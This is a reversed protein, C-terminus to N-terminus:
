SDYAPRDSRDTASLRRYFAMTSGIRVFERVVAGILFLIAMAAITSPDSRDVIIELLTPSSSPDAGLDIYYTLAESITDQGLQLAGRIGILFPVYALVLKTVTFGFVTRTDDNVTRASMYIAEIAGIGDTIIVPYLFQTYAAYPVVGVVAILVFIVTPLTLGNSEPVGLIFFPILLLFGVGLGAVILFAVLLSFWRSRIVDVGSLISSFRANSARSDSGVDTIESAIGFMAGVTLAYVVIGGFFGLFPVLQLWVVTLWMGLAILGILIAAGPRDWWTRRFDGYSASIIENFRHISNV